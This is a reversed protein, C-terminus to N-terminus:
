FSCMELDDGLLTHVKDYMSSPKNPEWKPKKMEFRLAKKGMFQSASVRSSITIAQQPCIRECLRCQMCASPRHIVGMVASENGATSVGGSKGGNGAPAVSGSDDFKTIAGTPCFVACMRCSSCKEADIAMSGIIRTEIEGTVPEGIHKLYNYVRVRRTPVFHSLTGDENVKQFAAPTKEAAPGILEATKAEAARKAVETTGTKASQFFDRRSVGAASATSAPASSRKAGGAATARAHEPLETSLEIPLDCGFAELMNNASTLVERVMRGGPAHQCTECDGCLLAASKAKYAGLGVLVSEDIRGLCPVVYVREEDFAGASLAGTATECAITPRGNSAVISRKVGETLDADSPSAVEIASTPCATACTGCGICKSQDVSISGDRYTIAQSTCAQACRLCGANRNRISICREEHISIMDSELSGLANILETLFSM